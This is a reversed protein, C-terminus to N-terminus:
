KGKLTRLHQLLKGPSTVIINLDAKIKTQNYHRINHTILFKSKSHHAAAVVHSDQQDFVYRAYTKVIRRKGLHRASILIKPLKKLIKHRKSVIKVEQQVARSITKNIHKNKIITASAGINSLLASIVVDSDLFVQNKEM